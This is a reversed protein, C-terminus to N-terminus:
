AQENKINILAIRQGIQGGGVDIGGKCGCVTEM